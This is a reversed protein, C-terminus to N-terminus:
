GHAALAEVVSRPERDMTQEATHERHSMSGEAMREALAVGSLHARDVQSAVVSDGCVGLRVEADWLYGVPRALIAPTDVFAHAWHHACLFARAM